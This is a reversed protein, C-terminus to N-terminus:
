PAPRRELEDIKARSRTTCGSTVGVEGNELCRSELDANGIGTADDGM